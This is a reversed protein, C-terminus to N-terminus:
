NNRLKDFECSGAKCRDMSSTLKERLMTLRTIQDDIQRIKAHFPDEVQCMNDTSGWQEFLLDIENLTFGFDKITRILLLRRLVEESYEKYNNARRQMRGVTILGKKEYFRIADKTLGSRKMLEGILM